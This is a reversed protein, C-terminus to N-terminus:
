AGFRAAYDDRLATWRDWFPASPLDAAKEALLDLHVHWGAGIMARVAGEPVRRHTLTLLTREGAPALEIEVEGTEGWTFVLRRPPDCAIVASDMSRGTEFGDPKAGPPTTLTDNRWTLTFRAGVRQAMEGDALWLRRKEADTLWPWIREPAGPLLRQIVLTDPGALRGHAEADAPALSADKM